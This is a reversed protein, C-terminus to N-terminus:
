MGLITAVGWSILFLIPMLLLALTYGKKEKIRKYDFARALLKKVAVWGSEKYTLYSTARLPALVSLPIFSFVM